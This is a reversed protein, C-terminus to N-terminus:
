EPEGLPYTETHLLHETEIKEGALQRLLLDAAVESIRRADQVITAKFPSEGSQILTLAKHAGDVGIVITSLKTERQVISIAEVAGLAMEDNTCFIVDIPRAKAIAEKLKALVIEKARDREFEGKNNVFIEAEPFKDRLVRECVEQRAHQAKSGVILVTPKDIQNQSVYRLIYYAARQGIEAPDYGVFSSNSPYDSVKSFPRVDMFVVPIHIQQCFQIIEFQLNEPEAPIIFGGVYDYSSHIISRFHLAQGQVSFDRAPIKIVVDLHQADLTRLLNQLVETFWPHQIFAPLIVFVRTSSRRFNRFLAVLLFILMTGVFVLSWAPVLMSLLPFNLISSMIWAAVGVLVGSVISIVLNFIFPHRHQNVYRM